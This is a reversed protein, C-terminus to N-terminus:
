KDVNISKKKYNMIFIKRNERRKYDSIIRYLMFLAVIVSCIAKVLHLYNNKFYKNNYLIKIAVFIVYIRAIIVLLLRTTQKGWGHVLNM